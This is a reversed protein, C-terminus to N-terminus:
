QTVVSHGLFTSRLLFIMLANIPAMQPFDTLQCTLGERLTQWVMAPLGEAKEKM